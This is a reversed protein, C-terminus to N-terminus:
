RSSVPLFDGHNSLLFLLSGIQAGAGAKLMSVVLPTRLESYPNAEESSYLFAACFLLFTCCKIAEVRVGKMGEADLLLGQCYLSSLVCGGLLLRVPYPTSSFLLVVFGALVAILFHVLVYAKGAAPLDSRKRIRQASSSPPLLARTATVTSFGPGVLAARFVGTFGRFHRISDFIPQWFQLQLVVDTWSRVKAATGFLMVEEQPLRESSPSADLHKLGETEDLFTGFLRDWVILFGGFNKHVRRDHHVRHHSPTMFFWELVGLRRILCTHVWFQYAVNAQDLGSYLAPHLFLAMPFYFVSGILTAWWSQRLATSLNYYESSHHVSHGAWIIQVQHALRHFWYYCFDTFVFGFVWVWPQEVPFQL